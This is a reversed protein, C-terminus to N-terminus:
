ELYITYVCIEAKMSIESSTLESTCVRYELSEDESEKNGASCMSVAKFKFRHLHGGPPLNTIDMDANKNTASATGPGSSKIYQILNSNPGATVASGVNSAKITVTTGKSAYPTAIM